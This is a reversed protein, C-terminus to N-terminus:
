QIQEGAKRAMGVEHPASAPSPHGPEDGSAGPLANAQASFLFSQKQAENRFQIGTKGSSSNERLTGPSATGWRRRLELM